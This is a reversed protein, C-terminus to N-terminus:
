AFRDAVVFYFSEQTLPARLSHRATGGPREGTQAAAPLASAMLAAVVLLPAGLVSRMALSLRNRVPAATSTDIRGGRGGPPPAAATTPAGVEPTRRLERRGAPM